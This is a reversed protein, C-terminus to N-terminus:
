HCFGVLSELTQKYHAVEARLKSDDGNVVVTKETVKSKSATAQVRQSIKEAEIVVEVAAYNRERLEANKVKLQDVEAQLKDLM